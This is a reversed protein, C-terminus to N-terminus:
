LRKLQEYLEALAKAKDNYQFARLDGEINLLLNMQEESPKWGFYIPWQEKAWDLVKQANNKVAEVYPTSEKTSYLQLKETAWTVISEVIDNSWLKADEKKRTEKLLFILVDLAQKREYEGDDTQYHKFGNELIDIATELGYGIDVEDLTEKKKEESPKWSSRPRRRKLCVEIEKKLEGNENSMSVYELARSILWKDREDSPVAKQSLNLMWGQCRNMESLTLGEKHYTSVLIAHCIKDIMKEDEESWEAPKYEVQKRALDRLLKGCEMGKYGNFLADGDMELCEAIAILKDVTEDKGYPFRWKAPKTKSLEIMASQVANTLVDNGQERVIKALGVKEFVDAIHKESCEVPKQEKQKNRLYKNQLYKNLREAAEQPTHGDWEDAIEKEPIQFLVWNKLEYHNSIQGTPLNAMVIFWGGGFCEEGDHHKKSKHVWEKPLLNFFAANYLMRYYYLENFTHYGDSIEGKDEPEKQKGLGYDSPNNKVAEKGREFGVTKGHIYANWIEVPKDKYDNWDLPTAIIEKYKELWATWRKRREETVYQNAIDESNFYSLIEKRIREDENTFSDTNEKCTEPIHLSEKQKELYSLAEYVSLGNAHLIERAKTVDRVICYILRSIKENKSERLEPIIEDIYESVAKCSETSLHSSLIKSKIERAKALAENYKKEYDM